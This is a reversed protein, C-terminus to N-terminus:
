RNLAWLGAIVAFLSADVARRVLKMPFVISAPLPGPLAVPTAGPRPANDNDHTCRVPRWTQLGNFRSVYGIIEM